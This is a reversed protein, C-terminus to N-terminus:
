IYNKSVGLTAAVGQSTWKKEEEEDGKAEKLREMRLATLMGGFSNKGTM